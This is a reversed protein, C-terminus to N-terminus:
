DTKEVETQVIEDMQELQLLQKAVKRMIFNTVQNQVGLILKNSDCLPDPRNTVNQEHPLNETITNASSNITYTDQNVIKRKLTRITEHLEQNRAEVKRVYEELKTVGQYTETCKAERIRM